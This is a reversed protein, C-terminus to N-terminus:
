DDVKSNKSKLASMADFRAMDEEERRIIEEMVDDDVESSNLGLASGIAMVKAVEIEADERLKAKRTRMSHSSMNHSSSGKTKWNGGLDVCLEFGVDKKQFGDPSNSFGGSLNAQRNSCEGKAKFSNKFVSIGLCDESSSSSEEFGRVCCQRKDINLKGNQVFGISLKKKKKGVWQKKVKASMGIRKIKRAAKYNRNDILGSKSKQQSSTSKEKGAHHNRLIARIGVKM